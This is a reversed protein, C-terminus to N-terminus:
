QEFRSQFYFTCRGANRCQLVLVSSYAREPVGIFGASHQEYNGVKYQDTESLETYIASGIRRVVITEGSSIIAILCRAIFQM